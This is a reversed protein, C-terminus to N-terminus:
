PTTRPSAAPMAPETQVLGNAILKDDSRPEGFLSLRDGPRLNRVTVTSLQSVDVAQTRGDQRRVTVLSGSVSQVIGDLRWMPEPTSPVSVSLAPALSSPTLGLTTADGPGFAVAAVEHPRSGEVGVVAVRSGATVAGPVRRQVASVDVYYLRWDEGRVVVFPEASLSAPWELTGQVVRPEGPAALANGALLTVLALAALSRKM